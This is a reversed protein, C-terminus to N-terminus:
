LKIFPHQKICVPSNQFIHLVPFFFFTLAVDNCGKPNYDKRIIVQDPTPPLPPAESPPPPPPPPPAPPQAEKPRSPPPPMREEDDSEEDM